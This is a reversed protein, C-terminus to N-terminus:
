FHKEETTKPNQKIMELVEASFTERDGTRLKAFLDGPDATMSMDGFFDELRFVSEGCVFMATWGADGASIPHTKTANKSLVGLAKRSFKQARVASLLKDFGADGKELVLSCSLGDRAKATPYETANLTIRTCEDFDLGKVMQEPTRPFAYVAWAAALALVLVLCILRKQSKKM